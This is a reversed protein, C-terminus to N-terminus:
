AGGAATGTDIVDPLLEADRLPEGATHKALVARGLSLHRASAEVLLRKGGVDDREGRLVPAVAIPADRGKQTLCAPDDVHLPDFPDPPPLPQLDWLLLWLFAAEPEIVPRADTQPRLTRVVDPGVVKDLAPGVVSPLEAHEVQDILEGPLAQRDPDVPLKPRRIDNVHQGVLEDKTADRIVDPRVIAGLKYRCCNTSPDGGDAGSRGVDLRAARPFVAVALAEIRLEPVLEQVALYEVAQGLCPDDDFAPALVVVCLAWM